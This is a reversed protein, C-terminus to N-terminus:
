EPITRVIINSLDSEVGNSNIAAIAFMYSSNVQLNEVVYSTAGPDTVNISHDLSGSAPGFYIVYGALDALSSNDSNQTPPDWSLTTSGTGTVHYDGTSTQGGSDGGGGSCSPLLLAILVPMALVVPGHM